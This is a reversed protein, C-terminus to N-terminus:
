KEKKIEFCKDCMVIEDGEDIVVCMWESAKIHEILEERSPLACPEIDDPFPMSCKKCSAVFVKIEEIM